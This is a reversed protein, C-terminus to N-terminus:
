DRLLVAEVTAYNRYDKSHWKTDSDKVWGFYFFSSPAEKNSTNCFSELARVAEERNRYVCVPRGCANFVYVM